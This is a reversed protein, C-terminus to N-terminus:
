WVKKGFEYFKLIKDLQLSIRLLNVSDEDPVSLEPTPVMVRILGLEDESEEESSCSGSPDSRVEMADVSQEAGPM